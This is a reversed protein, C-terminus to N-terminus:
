IETGTVSLSSEVNVMYDFEKLTEKLSEYHNRFYQPESNLIVKEFRFIDSNLGILKGIVQECIAKIESSFQKEIQEQEDKGINVGQEPTVELANTELIIDIYFRKENTNVNIKSKAKVIDLSIDGLGESHINYVGLGQMGKVALAGLFDNQDEVGLMKDGDFFAIGAMGLTKEKDEEPKTTGNKAGSNTAQESSDEGEGKSQIEGTSVNEKRSNEIKLYACYPDSTKGQLSGVFHMVDSNLNEPILDSIEKAQINKGDRSISLIESASTEAVCIKVTPRAEYHRIFFDLFNNMGSAALSKGVVVVLNQSYTPILGSQKKANELAELLSKGKLEMLKVSPETGGQSNKFDLAQITVKYGSSDLDIGIGQIVMREHLQVSGSCGTLFFLSFILFFLIIKRVKTKM